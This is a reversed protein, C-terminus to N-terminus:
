DKLTDPTLGAALLFDAPRISFSVRLLRNATGVIHLLIQHANGVRPYLIKVVGPSVRFPSGQVQSRKRINM